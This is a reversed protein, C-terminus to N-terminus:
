FTTKAQSEMCVLTRIECVRLSLLVLCVESASGRTIGFIRLEHDGRCLAIYLALHKQLYPSRSVSDRFHPIPVSALFTHHNLYMQGLDLGAHKGPTPKHTCPLLLSLWGIFCVLVENYTTGRDRGSVKSLIITLDSSFWVFCYSETDRRPLDLILRVICTVPVPRM